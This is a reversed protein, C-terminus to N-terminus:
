VALEGVAGLVLASLSLRPRAVLVPCPAHRVLKEAVSGLFLRRLGTRGHTGVVVIDFSADEDLLRLLGAGARGFRSRCKVHVHRANEEIRARWRALEDEVRTEADWAVPQAGPEGIDDMGEIMHALTIEARPTTALEMALEVAARSLESFDIPCLLHTFPRAVYDPRVVLVSCPAHRVVREAVSGLLVRPLGSRGATGILILDFAPDEAVLDVIVRWASGNVLQSTVRTAGLAVAEREAAALAVQASELVQQGLDTPVAYIGAYVVEWAHVIVLECDAQKALMVATGLAAKSGTSFDTACLIKKLM